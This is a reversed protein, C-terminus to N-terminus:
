SGKYALLGGIGLAALAIPAAWMHLFSSIFAVKPNKRDYFVKVETGIPPSKSSGGAVATFQQRNGQNDTFSVVPLYGVSEDFERSEYSEVRGTATAGSVLVTLRHWFLWCAMGLLAIGIIAFYYRM